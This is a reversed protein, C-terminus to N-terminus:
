KYKVKYMEKRLVTHAEIAIRSGYMAFVVLVRLLFEAAKDINFNGPICSRTEFDSSDSQKQAFPAINPPALALVAGILDSDSLKDKTKSNAHETAAIEEFLDSVDQKNKLSLRDQM